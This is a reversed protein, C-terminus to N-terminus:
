AAAAKPKHAAEKAAARAKLFEAMVQETVTNVDDKPVVGYFLVEDGNVKDDREIKTMKLKIEEVPEGTVKNTTKKITKITQVEYSDPKDWEEEEDEVISGLLSGSKM